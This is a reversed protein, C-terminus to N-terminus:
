LVLINLRKTLSTTATGSNKVQLSFVFIADTLVRPVRATTVIFHWLLCICVHHDWGMTFLLQAPFISKDPAISHM